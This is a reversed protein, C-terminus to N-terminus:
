VTGISSEGRAPASGRREPWAPASRWGPAFGASGTFPTIASHAKGIDQDHTAPVAARLRRQRQPLAPEFAAHRHNRALRERGVLTRRKRLVIERAVLGELFDQDARFTEPAIAIDLQTGATGDDRDVRLRAADLQAVARPEVIVRQDPSRAAVRAPQRARTRVQVSDMRDPCAAIGVADPRLDVGAHLAHRHDAATIDPQFGRRHKALHAQRHGHDFPHVAHEIADRPGLKRREVLGFM